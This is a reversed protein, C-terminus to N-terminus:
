CINTADVGKSEKIKICLNTILVIITFLVLIIINKVQQRSGLSDFLLKTSLFYAVLRTAMSIMISGYEYQDKM